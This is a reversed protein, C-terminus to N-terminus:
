FVEIQKGPEFGHMECRIHELPCVTVHKGLRKEHNVHVCGPVSCHSQSFVCTEEHKSLDVLKCLKMCGHTWNRCKIYLNDIKGILTEENYYGEHSCKSGEIRVLWLFFYIRDNRKLCVLKM